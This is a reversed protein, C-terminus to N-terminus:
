LAWGTNVVLEHTSGTKQLRGQAGLPLVLSNPVHGSKLGTYIPFPQRVSFEALAKSTFDKGNPELGGVFPGLILARIGAFVGAQLFHELVRDIRYGREGIDEVFLIKGRALLPNSTALSSQLTILNGGILDGVVSKTKQAKSNVPMLKKFVLSKTKGFLLDKLNKQSSSNLKYLRDLHPGHWSEWGWKQNVYQHLTTNDSFGILLKKVKPKKIKDLYPVLHLSGYGGRVAWIIGPEPAFLAKQLHSWRTARDSSCIPHNKQLLDKPVDMELGWSEVIKQSQALEKPDYPM